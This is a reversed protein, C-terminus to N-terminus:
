NHVREDVWSNQILRKPSIYPTPTRYINFQCQSVYRWMVDCCMVNDVCLPVPPLFSFRFSETAFLPSSRFSVSLCVCLPCTIYVSQSYIIRIFFLCCFFPNERTPMNHARVKRVYDSVNKCPKLYNNRSPCSSVRKTSTHFRVYTKVREKETVTETMSVQISWVSTKKTQKTKLSATM